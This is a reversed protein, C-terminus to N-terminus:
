LSNVVLNVKAIADKWFKIYINFNWVKKIHWDPLDIHKKTLEIGFKEKIYDIIDKEWIWWYVKGNSWTKLTFIITELNLTESLKHRNEILERRHLDDKKLKQKHKEEEQKTLEVAFWKPILFNSAYWSKVEKIEGEKWVNVVHKLFLVKM